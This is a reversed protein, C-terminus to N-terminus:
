AWARLRAAVHPEDEPRILEAFSDWDIFELKEEGPGAGIAERSFESM